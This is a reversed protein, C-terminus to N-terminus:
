IFICFFFISAIVKQSGARWQACSWKKRWRSHRWNPSIKDHQNFNWQSWQIDLTLSFTAIRTFNSGCSSMLLKFSRRQISYCFYNSVVRWQHEWWFIPVNVSKITNLLVTELWTLDLPWRPWMSWHSIQTFLSLGSAVLPKSPLVLNTMMKLCSLHHTPAWDSSLKEHTIIPRFAFTPTTYLQGQFTPPDGFHTQGIKSSGM